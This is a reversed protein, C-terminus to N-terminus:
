YNCIVAAYNHISSYQISFCLSCFIRKLVREKEGVSGEWREREKINRWICTRVHTHYEEHEEAGGSPFYLQSM